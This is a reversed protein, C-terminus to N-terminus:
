FTPPRFGIEPIIVFISYILTAINFQQLLNLFRPLVDIEFENVNNQDKNLTKHSGTSGLFLIPQGCM